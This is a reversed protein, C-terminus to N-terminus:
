KPYSYDGEGTKAWIRRCEQVLWLGTINKLLRFTNEVGGENTFNYLLAKENIVPKEVEIGMLSWTGSSLYISKKDSLPVAAIASGTDHAAPAVVPMINLGTEKAVSSLLNEIITGPSVIDTFIKRPIELKNLIEDAWKGAIPNYCQTTTAITFESVKIGSLWFNFLDPM